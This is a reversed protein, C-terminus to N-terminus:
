CRAFWFHEGCYRHCANGAVSGFLLPFCCFLSSVRNDTCPKINLEVEDSVIEGSEAVYYVLIQATPSMSGSIPVRVTSSGFYRAVSPLPPAVTTPPAPPGPM